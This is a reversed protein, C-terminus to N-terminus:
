TLNALRRKRRYFGIEADKDITPRVSQNLQTTVDLLTAFLPPNSFLPIVM